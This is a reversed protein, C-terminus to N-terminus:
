GDSVESPTTPTAGKGCVTLILKGFMKGKARIEFSWGNREKEPKWRGLEFYDPMRGIEYHRGIVNRACQRAYRKASIHRERLPADKRAFAEISEYDRYAHECFDENEYSEGTYFGIINLNYWFTEYKRYNETKRM